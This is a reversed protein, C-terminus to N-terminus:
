SVFARGVRSSGRALWTMDFAQKEQRQREELQLAGQRRKAAAGAGPGLQSLRELLCLANARVVTISLARRVEGMVKGLQGPGAEWGQARSMAAVRSEAFVLLLKHLDPSLDGWPGAVLEGDELGGLDRFRTALPGPPPELKAQSSWSERRGMRGINVLVDFVSM